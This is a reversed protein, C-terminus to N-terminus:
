GEQEVDNLADKSTFVRVPQAKSYGFTADNVQAEMDESDTQCDHCIVGMLYGHWFDGNWLEKDTAESYPKGCRMCHSAELLDNINGQIMRPNEMKRVKRIKMAM